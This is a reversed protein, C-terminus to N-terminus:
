RKLTSKEIYKKIELAKEYSKKNSFTITNEDNMKSGMKSILPDGNKSTKVYERPLFPFTTHLYGPTSFQLYGPTFGYKKIQISTIDEFYIYKKGRINRLILGGLTGRDLIVYNKYLDIKGNSGKFSIIAEEAM